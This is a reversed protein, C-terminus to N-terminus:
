LGGLPDDGGGLVIPKSKVKTAPKSTAPKSPKASSPKKRTSKSPKSPASAPEVVLAPSPEVVPEVADGVIELRDNAPESSPEASASLPAAQVQTLEGSPAQERVLMFGLVAILGAAAFPTMWALAARAPHYEAVVERELRALAARRETNQRGLDALREAHEREIEASLRHQHDLARQHEVHARRAQRAIARPWASRLALELTQIDAAQRRTTAKLTRRHDEISLRERELRDLEIMALTLEENASHQSTM